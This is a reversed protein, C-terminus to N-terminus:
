GMSLERKGNVKTNGAKRITFSEKVM